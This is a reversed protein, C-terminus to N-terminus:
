LWGRFHLKEAERFAVRSSMGAPYPKRSLSIAPVRTTDSPPGAETADGSRATHVLGGDHDAAPSGRELTGLETPHVGNEAVDLVGQTAGVM